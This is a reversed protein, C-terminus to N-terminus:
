IRIQGTSATDHGLRMLILECVARRASVGQSVVFEEMSSCSGSFHIAHIIKDEHVLIARFHTVYVHEDFSALLNTAAGLVGLLTSCDPVDVWRAPLLRIDPGCIPCYVNGDKSVSRSDEPDSHPCGCLAQVKVIPDDSVQANEM